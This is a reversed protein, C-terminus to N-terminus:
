HPNLTIGQWLLPEGDGKSPFVAGLMRPTGLILTGNQYGEISPAIIYDYGCPAWYKSFLGHLLVREPTHIALPNKCVICWPLPEQLTRGNMAM